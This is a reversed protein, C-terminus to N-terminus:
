YFNVQILGTGVKSICATNIASHFVPSPIFLPDQFLKKKGLFILDTFLTYLKISNM